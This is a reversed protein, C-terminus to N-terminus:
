SALTKTVLNNFCDSQMTESLTDHGDYSIIPHLTVGPLGEMRRASASDNPHNDAYCLHLEPIRPAADYLAKLDAAMAPARDYLDLMEPHKELDSRRADGIDLNTPASFALVGRAHLDLGFRLAAYGGISHGVCHLLPKAGDTDPRVISPVIRLLAELCESYSSGLGKIGDLYFCGNTDRMFVFSADVRNLFVDENFGWFRGGKGPFIIIVRTAEPNHAVMAGFDQQRGPHLLARGALLHRCLRLMEPHGIPPSQLLDSLLKHAPEVFGFVILITAAHLREAASADPGQAREWAEAVVEPLEAWTTDDDISDTSEERGAPTSVPAPRMNGDDALVVPRDESRTTQRNGLSEVAKVLDRPTMGAHVINLPVTCGLAHEIRFIVRLIKLSDGGADEFTLNDTYAQSGLTQAWAKAVEEEISRPGLAIM